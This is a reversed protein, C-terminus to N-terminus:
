ICSNEQTGALMGTRIMIDAPNVTAAYNRIRVQGRGAHVEPFDYIELVEPGGHNSFGIARM